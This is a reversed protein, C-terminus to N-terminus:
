EIVELKWGRFVAVTCHLEWQHSECKERTRHDALYRQLQAHADQRLKEVAEDTSNKKCYKLEILYAHQKFGLPELFMDAFGHNAEQETTVTFGSNKCFHSLIFGKVFFEGKADFDRVSSNNEMISAIYNIFPKCDGEFCLTNWHKDLINMDTRWGLTDSYCKALYMCYQQRVTDNPILFKPNGKKDLGYSLLGMYFLLSKLIRPSSLEAISFEPKLPFFTEGDNIINQIIDSKEGFTKEIKIMKEMKFFDTSVNPDILEEPIHGNSSVYQRVFYLVMDSNFVRDNDIAYLSFCYNNYCPKMVDLLEDVSHRFVGTQDRYYELMTRVETEDFGMISNLQAELSLNRAINFGSTVDSLTLPSVGSIFIREILANNESTMDKLVNFFLRFFGDGHTLTKYAAEDTSFLTNAFNDYEDIMIYIKYPTNEALTLLKDLAVDCKGNAERLYEDANDPLFKKYRNVFRRITECGKSNFSAQVSDSTTDVSAFSFKLIMYQGQRPTTHDYIYLGGFNQEYNDKQLVDYYAALTNMFLTKGFRRPRLLMIYKAANEIRPIYMTKDVYYSNEKRITVYDTEGYPINRM